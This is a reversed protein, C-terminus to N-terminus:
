FGSDPYSRSRYETQFAADLDSISTCLQGTMVKEPAVKAANINSKWVMVKGDQGGSAFYEGQPSFAVAQV